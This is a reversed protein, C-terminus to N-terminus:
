VGTRCDHGPSQGHMGCLCIVAWECASVTYVIIALVYFSLARENILDSQKHPVPARADLGPGLLFFFFIVFVYM